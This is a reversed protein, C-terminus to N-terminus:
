VNRENLTKQEHAEQEDHPSAPPVDLMPRKNISVVLEGMLEGLLLQMSEKAVRSPNSM